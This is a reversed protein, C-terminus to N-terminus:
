SWKVKEKGNQQDGRGRIGEMNHVHVHEGISIHETARGISEGYKYVIEGIQITKFAMKHGFTLDQISKIQYIETQVMFCIQEGKKIDRLVTVVNDKPHMVIGELNSVFTKDAM